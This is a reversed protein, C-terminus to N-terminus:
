IGFEALESLTADAERIYRPKGRNDEHKFGEGEWCRETFDCYCCKWYLYQRGTPKRQRMEDQPEFARPPLNDLTAGHVGRFREKVDAVIQEDYLVPLIARESTNKNYAWIFARHVGTAAMYANLQAVYDEPLGQSVMRSYSSDSATKVDILAYGDALQVRGDCHGKVSGVEEDVYLEVVREQWDLPAVQAILARESEHLIDGLMFINYGRSSIPPIEDPVLKTYAMARACKGSSSLRMPNPKRPTREFAMPMEIAGGKENMDIVFQNVAVLIDEPTNLLEM